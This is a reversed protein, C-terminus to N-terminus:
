SGSANLRKYAVYRPATVYGARLWTFRELPKNTLNAVTNIICSPVFTCFLLIWGVSSQPLTLALMKGINRLNATLTKGSTPLATYLFVATSKKIFYRPVGDLKQTMSLKKQLCQSM